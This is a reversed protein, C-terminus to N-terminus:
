PAPVLPPDISDVRDFVLDSSVQGSVVTAELRDPMTEDPLIVFTAEQSGGPANPPLTFIVAYAIPIGNGDRQAVRVTAASEHIDGTRGFCEPAGASPSAGDWWRVNATGELTSDSPYSEAGLELALCPGRSLRGELLYSGVPQLATPPASPLPNLAPNVAPVRDLVLGFGSAGESTELAQLLDDTSQAALITIQAPM